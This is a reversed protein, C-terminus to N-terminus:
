KGGCVENETIQKVKVGNKTFLEEHHPKYFDNMYFIKKIGAAVIARMCILCPFSTVFMDAGDIKTGKRAASVIANIEAHISCALQPEKGGSLKLEHRICGSNDPYIQYPGIKAYALTPGKSGTQNDRNRFDRCYEEGELTENWAETLMKGDKAIVCGIGIWCKTNGAIEAARRMLEISTM